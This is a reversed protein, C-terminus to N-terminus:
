GAVASLVEAKRTSPNAICSLNLLFRIVLNMLFKKVFISYDAFCVESFKDM